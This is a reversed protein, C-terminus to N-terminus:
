LLAMLRVGLVVVSSEHPLAVITDNCTARLASRVDTDSPVGRGREFLFCLLSMAATQLPVNYSAAGIVRQVHAVLQQATTDAISGPSDHLLVLLKQLVAAQVDAAAPSALLLHM